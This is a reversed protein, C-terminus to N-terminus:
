FLSPTTKSDRFLQNDIYLKNVILAICKGKMRNEKFIPYLVEKPFQDNMGIKMGALRKGLSKVMIKDKFFAFKAVIPRGYRQWRQRFRHIHKHQIKDIAECPIQLATLLFELSVYLFM